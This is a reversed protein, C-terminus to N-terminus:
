STFPSYAGTVSGPNILCLNNHINTSLKHTHGSIIIDASVSRGLNCLLEMDSWPVIQHGHTLLIVFDGIKIVKQEPFEGFGILIM